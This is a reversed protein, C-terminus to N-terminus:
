AIFLPDEDGDNFASCSRALPSLLLYKPGQLRRQFSENSLRKQMM